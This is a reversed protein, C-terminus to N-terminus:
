YNKMQNSIFMVMAAFGPKNVASCKAHPIAIGEGVATLEKKKEQWFRRKKKEEVLKIIEEFRKEVLMKFGRIILIVV